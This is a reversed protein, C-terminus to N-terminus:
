ESAASTCALSVRALLSLRLSLPQGADASSEPEAAGPKARRPNAIPFARPCLCEVHTVRWGRGSAASLAQTQSEAAAFAQIALARYGAHQAEIYAPEFPQGAPLDQWLDEYYSMTMQAVDSSSLVASM